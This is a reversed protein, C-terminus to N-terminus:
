IIDTKEIIDTNAKTSKHKPGMIKSVINNVSDYQRLLGVPFVCDFFVFMSTNLFVFLLLKHTKKKKVSSGYFLVALFISLMSSAWENGVFGITTTESSLMENIIRKKKYFCISLSKYVHVLRLDVLPLRHVIFLKSITKPSTDCCKWCRYRKKSHQLVHTWVTEDM